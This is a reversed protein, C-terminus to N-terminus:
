VACQASFTEEDGRGRAFSAACTLAAINSALTSPLYGSNEERREQPTAPEQRVLYGAGRLSSSMSVNNSTMRNM